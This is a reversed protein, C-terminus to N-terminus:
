CDDLSHRLSNRVKVPTSQQKKTSRPKSSSTKSGSGAPIESAQEGLSAKTKEIMAEREASKRKAEVQTREEVKRKLEEVSIGEKSAKSELARKYKDLYLIRKREVGARGGILQQWEPTASNSRSSSSLCRSITTGSRPLILRITSSMMMMM